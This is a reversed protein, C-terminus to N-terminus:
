GSSRARLRAGFHYLLYPTPTLALAVFGFLSVAWSIGIGEFVQKFTLLLAGTMLAAGVPTLERPISFLPFAIGLCFSLMRAGASASAGYRPGYFVVVYTLGANFCLLTGMAYFGSAIVPVIWHISRQATWAMWFLSIPVMPSGIMAPVLSWEPVYTKQQTARINRALRYQMYTSVCAGLFYGIIWAIWTLGSAALGFGYVQEFIFPVAALLAYIIAFSIATYIGIAAVVPETLLMHVPRRLITLYPLKGLRTLDAKVREWRDESNSLRRLITARHTEKAFAILLVAPVAFMLPVWATYRWDGTYEIAFGAVIFGLSPGVFGLFSFVGIPFARQYPLYLDALTGGNCLDGREWLTGRLLPLHHGWLHSEFTGVWSSLSM